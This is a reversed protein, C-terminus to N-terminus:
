PSGKRVASVVGPTSQAAMGPVRLLLCTDMILCPSAPVRPLHVRATDELGRPILKACNESGVGPSPNTDRGVGSDAARDM